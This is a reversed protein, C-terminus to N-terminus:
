SAGRGSVGASGKRAPPGCGVAAPRSWPRRRSATAVPVTSARLTPPVIPTAAIAWAVAAVGDLVELPVVLPVVSEPDDLEESEPEDLEEFESELPETVRPLLL